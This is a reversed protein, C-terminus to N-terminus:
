LEDVPPQILASPSPKDIMSHIRVQVGCPFVLNVSESTFSGMDKLEVEKVTPQGTKIVTKVREFVELGLSRM